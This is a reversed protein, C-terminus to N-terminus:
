QFDFSVEDLRTRVNPAGSTQITQLLLRVQGTGDEIFDDPDAGSPLGFDQLGDVDSLPMVGPLSVYSGTTFNYLKARLNLNGNNNQKSAEIGITISTGAFGDPAAAVLEFQSVPDSVQFAFVAGHAAWHHDDSGCTASFDFTEGFGEVLTGSDAHVEGVGVPIVSALSAGNNTDLVLRLKDGAGSIVVEWNWSNVSRGQTGFADWNGSNVIKAFYTGPVAIPSEYVYIGGGTHTMAFLPDGNNWDGTGGAETMFDGVANWNTPDNSVLIRKTDRLFCNGLANEDVTITINGDADSYGWCNSEDPFNVHSAWDGAIDL